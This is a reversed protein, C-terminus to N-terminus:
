QSGFRSFKNFLSPLLPGAGGFSGDGMDDGMDQAQFPQVPTHLSSGGVPLRAGLRRSASGDSPFRTPYPLAYSPGGGPPPTPPVPPLWPPLLVSDIVTVDGNTALIPPRNISATTCNAGTARLLMTDPDCSFTIPQSAM